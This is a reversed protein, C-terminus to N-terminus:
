NTKIYKPLQLNFVTGHKSTKCGISGGMGDILNKSISLGLGSHGKGKTSKIPSYLNKLIEGPIGPGTDELELEVFTKGSVNINRTTIKLKGSNEMAEVANKIINTIIQKISDKVVYVKEINKDLDLECKIHHTTFLSLKFIGVLDTILENINLAQNSNNEEEDFEDACRLIISGVRDIEEKIINIDNQAPDESDLRKGLIQLYNRIVSLPNNTEHIIERAKNKIELNKHTLLDHQLATQEQIKNIMIAADSSFISLLNKNKLLNSCQSSDVASVIIANNTNSNIIPICLFGESRLVRIIQQDIIALLHDEAVSFSDKIDHETLSKSLLSKSKIPININRLLRNNTLAQKSAISLSQSEEDFSFILSKQIGFLIMLSKQISAYVSLNEDAQLPLQSGHMLAVDRVEQALTVQKKDNDSADISGIDIDMSRAVTKVEESSQNIIDKIISESLDFLKVSADFQIPALEEQDAMELSLTNSLNIIKVLHDADLVDEISAHHYRVADSILENLGWKELLRAGLDDHTIKFSENEIDLLKQDPYTSHAISSYDFEAHNELVLKGIDHLLGAIYAEEVYKYNTLRALSKAITACRLAHKWFDKLFLSKENSYRSFFQKVSATITISKITDLGLFMLIHKLSELHRAHGYVPSNAVSIVKASLAADKSIIDSITTFCIDDDRCARLLNILIHPLSPLKNAESDELSKIVIERM